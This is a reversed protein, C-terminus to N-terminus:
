DVVLKAIDNVQGRLTEGLSALEQKSGGTSDSVVKLISDNSNKLASSLEDRQSRADQTAEQRSNSIEDRVIREVREIGNEVTVLHTLVELANQSVNNRRFLVILILLLLSIAVIVLLELM